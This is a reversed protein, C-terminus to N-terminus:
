GNKRVLTPTKYCESGGLARFLTLHPKNPVTRKLFHFPGIFTPINFHTTNSVRHVHAVRMKKVGGRAICIALTLSRWLWHVVERRTWQITTCSGCSRFNVGARLKAAIGEHGIVEQFRM